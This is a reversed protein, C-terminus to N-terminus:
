GTYTFTGSTAYSHVWYTYSGSTYSTVTGGGGRQTPNQYSIIVIGSGGAAGKTRTSDSYVGGGGGSGTNQTGATACSGGNM